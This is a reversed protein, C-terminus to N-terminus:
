YGKMNPNWGFAKIMLEAPIRRSAIRLCIEREDADPYRRLIDARALQGMMANMGEIRQFKEAPSM